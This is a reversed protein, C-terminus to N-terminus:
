TDPAVKTWLYLTLELHRDNEFDLNLRNIVKEIPQFPVPLITGFLRDSKDTKLNFLVLLCELGKDIVFYVGSMSKLYASGRRSICEPKQKRRLKRKRCRRRFDM